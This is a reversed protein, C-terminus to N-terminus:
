NNYTNYTDTEPSIINLDFLSKINTYVAFHDGYDAQNGDRVM